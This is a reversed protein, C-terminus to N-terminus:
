GLHLLKVVSFMVRGAATPCSFCVSFHPVSFHSEENDKQGM